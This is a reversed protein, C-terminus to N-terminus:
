KNILHNYRSIKRYIKRQADEEQLYTSTERVVNLIQIGTASLAGKFPNPTVLNFITNDIGNAVSSDRNNEFITVIDVIVVANDVFSKKNNQQTESEARIVVYNGNETEPVDEKYVNISNNKLLVFWADMLLNMSM